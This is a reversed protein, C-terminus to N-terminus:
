QQRDEEHKKREKELAAPGETKEDFAYFPLDLLLWRKVFTPLPRYLARPLPLLISTSCLYEKYAKLAGPYKDKNFPANSLLYFREATPKEATPIGSGFLLLSYAPTLFALPHIIHPSTCPRSPPLRSPPTNLANQAV